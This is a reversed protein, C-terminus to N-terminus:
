RVDAVWGAVMVTALVLWLKRCENAVWGRYAGVIRHAAGAEGAFM